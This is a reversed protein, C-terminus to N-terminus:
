THRPVQCSKEVVVAEVLSMGGVILSSLFGSELAEGDHCVAVVGGGVDWGTLELVCSSATSWVASCSVASVVIAIEM